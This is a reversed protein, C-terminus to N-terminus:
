AHLWTASLFSFATAMVKASGPNFSSVSIQDAAAMRALGTLNVCDTATSGFTKNIRWGQVSDAVLTLEIGSIPGTNSSVALTILWVGATHVNYLFNTGDWGSDTDEYVLSMPVNGNGLSNTTGNPQVRLTPVAAVPHVHDPRTFAAISGGSATENPTIAGIQGSTAWPPAPHVHNLPAWTPSGGVQAAQGPAVAQIVALQTGNQGVVRWGAPAVGAIPTTSEGTYYLLYPPSSNVSYITGKIPAVPLNALPGPPDIFVVAGSSNPNTGGDDLATALKDMDSPVNAPDTSVPYPIELRSTSTPM